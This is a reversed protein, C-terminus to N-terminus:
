KRVCAMCEPRILTVLNRGIMFSEWSEYLSAYCPQRFEVHWTINAEFDAKLLTIESNRQFAIFGRDFTDSPFGLSDPEPLVTEFDIITGTPTSSIGVLLCLCARRSQQQWNKEEEEEEYVTPVNQSTLAKGKEVKSFGVDISFFHTGHM